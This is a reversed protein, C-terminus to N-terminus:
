AISFRKGETITSSHRTHSLQPYWFFAPSLPRVPHASAHKLPNVHIKEIMSILGCLLWWSRVLASGREPSIITVTKRNDTRNGHQVVVDCLVMSERLLPQQCSRATSDM